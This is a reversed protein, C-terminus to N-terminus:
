FGEMAGQPRLVLNSCRLQFQLVIGWRPWEGLGVEEGTKSIESRMDVEQRRGPSAQGREASREWVSAEPPYRSPGLTAEHQKSMMPSEKNHM